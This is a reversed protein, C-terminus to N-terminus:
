KAKQPLDMNTMWNIGYKDTVMGFRAGWFTENLPMTVKGGESLADFLRTQEDKNTLNISLSLNNGIQVPRDPTSDSAMFFINEAKFEAHMVLDKHEKPTDNPAEGFTQMSHIEGNLATKYFELAEKCKGDSFTLYVNLQKM